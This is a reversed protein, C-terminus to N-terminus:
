KRLVFEKANLLAWAIDELAQRKDKSESFYKVSESVEISTPSRSLATWYLDNIMQEPSHRSALLGSLRNEPNSLLQSIEARQDTSIGSESYNRGFTRM